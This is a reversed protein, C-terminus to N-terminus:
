AGCAGGCGAACSSGNGYIHSDVASDKDKVGDSCSFIIFSLLSLTVLIGWVLVILGNGIGEGEFSGVLGGHNWQRVM